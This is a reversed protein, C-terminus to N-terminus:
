SLLSSIETPEGARMWLCFTVAPLYAAVVLLLESQGSEILYAIPLLWFVNFASYLLTVRGHEGWRQALKQYAHTRHAQTVAERRITRNALTVTADSIFAAGLALITGYALVGHVVLSAAIALVAVALYNSGADGMFIRAPAWNMVLFGACACALLVSWWTLWGTQAVAAGNSLLAMALCLFVAQSAALGDIGDMFNYLNIWWVGGLLAIAYILAMPAEGFPTTIVHPTGVTALLVAVIAVHALIRSKPSLQFRDDLLGIMAAAGTLLMIVAAFQEGGPYSALGGCIGALAIGIGGGSPTPRSHSSRETPQQILQLRGAFKSLLTAVGWAAVFVGAAIIIRNVETAM